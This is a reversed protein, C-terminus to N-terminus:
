SVVKTAAQGLTGMGYTMAGLPRGLLISQFLLRRSASVLKVVM